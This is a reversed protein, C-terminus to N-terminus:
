SAFFFPKEFIIAFILICFNIFLLEKIFNLHKEFFKQLKQKVLAANAAITPRTM